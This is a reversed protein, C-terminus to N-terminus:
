LAGEQHKDWNERADRMYSHKFREVKGAMQKQQQGLMAAQMVCWAPRGAGVACGCLHM